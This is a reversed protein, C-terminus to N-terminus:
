VDSTSRKLNLTMLYICVALLSPNRGIKWFYCVCFACFVAVAGLSVGRLLRELREEEMRGEMLAHLARWLDLPYVPLLNLGGLLLNAYLLTFFTKQSLCARFLLSFLCFAGNVAVGGLAALAEKSNPLLFADAREIVVGAACFSVARVRAGFLRLLLLHGCEHLLASVFCLLATQSDRLLLMLALVAFFSFGIHLSFSPFRLTM